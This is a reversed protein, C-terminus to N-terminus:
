CGSRPGVRYRTVGISSNRASEGWRWLALGLGAGVAASIADSMDPSRDPLLVQGSELLLGLGFGFLVTRQLTQRWSLAALLAGLPVFIIAQGVVDTLDEINRSGFYSWYPVFMATTWFPPHPWAFRFPSWTALVTAVGWIALAPMIWRRPEGNSWRMVTMAGVSSGVVALAVSTGDADRGPVVLQMIELALSLSGSLAVAWGIARNGARGSECAALVFLGGILTWTLTEAGWRIAAATLHEGPLVGFQILRMSKLKAATGQREHKVYAPALGAVLLGVMVVLACAALPHALLLQRIRVSAVPWIWRALPWGILAGMVSGLTNAALDFFSMHRLPAFVQLFEVFGSLCAGSLLAWVLATLWASRRGVLWIGLLVGWPVFLLVNSYVDHWSGGGGRLPREWLRHLRWRILDGNASFDFPLMTAYLIFLAWVLLLSPAHGSRPVVPPIRIRILRFVM